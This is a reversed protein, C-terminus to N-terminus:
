PAEKVAPELEVWGPTTRQPSTRRRTSARTLRLTSTHADALSSVVDDAGAARLERRPEAGHFGWCGVLIPVDPFATRLRKVLHRARGSAELASLCILNPRAAEVTKLLEAVLIGPPAVEIAGGAPELLRGLAELAVCDADDDTPSGAVVVPAATAVADDPKPPVVHHLVARTTDIVHAYEVATLQGTERDHRARALAAILITDYATEHSGAKAAERVLEVAEQRDDALVRQYYTLHPEMGPEDSVLIEVFELGPVTRAFVVLWVTLPIALALGIPGWLWAWFAAAMLLAIASVGARRGSILPELVFAVTAETVAFLGAILLPKTWGDFVALSVMIPVLAAVWAGVYPIFRLLAASFGWVLAFPLQLSFLGLMVAIGFCANLATQSLLYGSIRDSAEDLVRTTRALRDHGLLRVVRARLERQQILMFMVLALVMVASGLPEIIRPLHWIPHPQTVTVLLPRQAGAGPREIQKMLDKATDEVKEFVGTRGVRQVDAIKRALTARYRPLDDALTSIQHFLAWGLGGTLMLTLSVVVVVAPIQGLGTRRVLGVVPSLLFTILLALAIPIFLVRAWYLCAVALVLGGLIILRSSGQVDRKSDIV